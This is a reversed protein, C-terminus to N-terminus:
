VRDVAVTQFVQVMFVVRLKVLQEQATVIQHVSQGVLEVQMHDM